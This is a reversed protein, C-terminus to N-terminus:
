ASTASRTAPNAAAYGREVAASASQQAPERLADRASQVPDPCFRSIRYLADRLAPERAAIPRLVELTRAHMDAAIQGSLHPNGLRQALVRLQGAQRLTIVGEIVAPTLILDLSDTAM